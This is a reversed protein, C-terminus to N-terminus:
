LSHENDFLYFHRQEYVAPRGTMDAGCGQEGAPPLVCQWGIVTEVSHKGGQRLALLQGPRIVKFQNLQGGPLLQLRTVGRHNM